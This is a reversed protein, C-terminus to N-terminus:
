FEAEVPQSVTFICLYFLKVQWIEVKGLSWLLLEHVSGLFGRRCNKGSLQSTHNVGEETVVHLIFRERRGAAFCRFLTTSRSMMAHPTRTGTGCGYNGYNKTITMM